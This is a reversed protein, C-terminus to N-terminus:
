EHEGAYRARGSSIWGYIRTNGCKLAKIAAKISAYRAGAIIVARANAGGRKRKGQRVRDLNAPRQGPKLGVTQKVPARQTHTRCPLASSLRVAAALDPRM